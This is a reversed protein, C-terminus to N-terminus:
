LRLGLDAPYRLLLCELIRGLLDEPGLALQNDLGHAFLEHKDELEKIQFAHLARIDEVLYERLDDVVVEVPDGLIHAAVEEVNICDQEHCDDVVLVLAIHVFVFECDKIEEEFLNADEEPGSERM